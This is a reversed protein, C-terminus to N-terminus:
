MKDPTEQFAGGFLEDAVSTSDVFDKFEFGLNKNKRLFFMLLSLAVGTALGIIVYKKM